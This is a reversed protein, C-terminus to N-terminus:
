CKAHYGGVGVTIQSGKIYGMSDKKELPKEVRPEGDPCNVTGVVAM